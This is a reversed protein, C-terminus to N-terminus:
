ACIEQESAAQQEERALQEIREAVRRSFEEGEPDIGEAGMAERVERIAQSRLRRHHAKSQVASVNSGSEQASPMLSADGEEDDDTGEGEAADRLHDEYRAEELFRQLGMVFKPEQGSQHVQETFRKVGNGIDSPSAGERLRANLAHLAPRRATHMSVPYMRLLRELLFERDDASLSRPNTKAIRRARDEESEEGTVIPGEAPAAGDFDLCRRNPGLFTSVHLVARREDEVFRQYILARERLYALSYGERLRAALAERALKKSGMRTSASQDPRAESLWKRWGKWLPEFVESVEADSWERPGEDTTVASSEEEHGSEMAETATESDAVLGSPAVPRTATETDSPAEQRAEDPDGLVPDPHDDSSPARNRRTRFAELWDPRISEVRRAEAELAEEREREDAIQYAAMTPVWVYETQECYRLFGLDELVGFAYRVESPGIGFDALETAVWSSPLRYIGTPHVTPGTLVYTLVVLTQIDSQARLSRMTTTAWLADDVVRMHSKLTDSM